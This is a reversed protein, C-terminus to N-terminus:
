CRGCLRGANIKFIIKLQYRYNRYNSMDSAFDHLLMLEMKNYFFVFKKFVKEISLFKMHLM